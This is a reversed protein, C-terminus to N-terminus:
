FKKYLKMKKINQVTVNKKINDYEPVKEIEWHNVNVLELNIAPFIM